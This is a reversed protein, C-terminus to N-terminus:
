GDISPHKKLFSFEEAIVPIGRIVSLTLALWALGVAGSHVWDSWAHGLERLGLDLTLVAFAAGKVIGYFDRMFRSSVLFQNIPHKIQNFATEGNCTGVCRVADTLTGRTIVILPILLPILGHCSFVVWLIIELARDVAIDLASGLLSTQNLRRAVMGDLMDLLMILIIFPICWFIVIPSNNLLSVFIFLLPLRILTIFNAM